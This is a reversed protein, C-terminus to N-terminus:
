VNVPSDAWETWACLEDLSSRECGKVLRDTSMGRADMCSGCIGVQGGHATLDKLMSGVNYFGNPTKQDAGASVVADGFFFVRVEHGDRKAMQRAWRLANYTRESGYPADHMVYLLKM